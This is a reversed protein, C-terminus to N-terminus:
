IEAIRETADGFQERHVGCKDMMSLFLSCMKRDPKDGYELVRGTEVAEEASGPRLGHDVTLATLRGGRTEVWAQLLLTLALSDAGGSVGVALQPAPEFPGCRRM